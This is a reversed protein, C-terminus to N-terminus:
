QDEGPFKTLEAEPCPEDHYAAWEQRQKWREVSIEQCRECYLGIYDYDGSPTVLISCKLCNM